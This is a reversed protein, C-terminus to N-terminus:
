KTHHRLAIRYGSGYGVLLPLYDWTYVNDDLSSVGSYRSIGVTTKPKRYGLAPPRENEGTDAKFAPLYFYVRGNFRPFQPYFQVFMGCLKIGHLYYGFGFG